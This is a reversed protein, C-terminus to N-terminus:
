DERVEIGTPVFRNGNAYLFVTSPNKGSTRRGNDGRRVHRLEPGARPVASGRNFRGRSNATEVDDEWDQM